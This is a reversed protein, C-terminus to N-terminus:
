RRGRRLRRAAHGLRQAVAHEKREGAVVLAELVHQRVLEHVRELVVDERAAAGAVPQLRERLDIRREPEHLAHGLVEDSPGFWM